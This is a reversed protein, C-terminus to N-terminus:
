VLIPIYRFLNEYRKSYSFNLAQNHMNGMLAQGQTFNDILFIGKSRNIDGISYNGINNTNDMGCVYKNCEIKKSIGM